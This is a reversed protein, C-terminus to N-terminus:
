ISTKLGCPLLKNGGATFYDINGLKLMRPTGIPSLRSQEWKMASWISFTRSAARTSTAATSRRM